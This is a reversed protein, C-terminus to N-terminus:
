SPLPPDNATQDAVMFDFEGPMFSLKILSGRPDVQNLKWDWRKWFSLSKVWARIDGQIQLVRPHEWDDLSRLVSVCGSPLGALLLATAFNRKFLDPVDAREWTSGPNLSLSRMIKVAEEVQDSRMLCVALANKDSPNSGATRLVDIAKSYHDGAILSEVRQISPDVVVQKASRSPDSAQHIPSAPGEGKIQLSMIFGDNFAFACAAFARLLAHAM